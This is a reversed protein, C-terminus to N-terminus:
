SRSIAITVTEDGVHFEAQPITDPMPVGGDINVQVIDEANTAQKLYDHFQKVASRVTQTNTVYISIPESDAIGQEQRMQQICQVLQDAQSRIVAHGDDQTSQAAINNDATAM